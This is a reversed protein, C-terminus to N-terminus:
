TLNRLPEGHFVDLFLIISFLLASSSHGSPMGFQKSCSITNIWYNEM